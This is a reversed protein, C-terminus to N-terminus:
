KGLNLASEDSYSTSCISKREVIISFCNREVWGVWREADLETTEEILKTYTSFFGFIFIKIEGTGFGLEL